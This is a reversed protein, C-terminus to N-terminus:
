SGAKWLGAGAVFLLASPWWVVPSSATSGSGGAGIDRRLQALQASSPNIIQYAILIIGIIILMSGILKFAVKKNGDASSSVEPAPAPKSVIPEAAKVSASVPAGCHPCATALTSVSKKCDICTILPM